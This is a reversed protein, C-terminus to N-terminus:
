RQTRRTVPASNPAKSRFHPALGLDNPLDLTPGAYTFVDAMTKPLARITAPVLNGLLRGCSHMRHM